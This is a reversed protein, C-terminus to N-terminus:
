PMHSLLLDLMLLKKCIPGSIVKAEMKVTRPLCYGHEYQVELHVDMADDEVHTDRGYGDDDESVEESEDEDSSESTAEETSEDEKLEAEQEEDVVQGMGDKSSVHKIRKVKLNFFDLVFNIAGLLVGEQDQHM